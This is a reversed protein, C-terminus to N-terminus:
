VPNRAALDKQAMAKACPQCLFIACIGTLEGSAVASIPFERKCDYCSKRPLLDQPPMGACNAAEPEPCLCLAPTGDLSAAVLCELCILGACLHLINLAARGCRHCSRFIPGAAM